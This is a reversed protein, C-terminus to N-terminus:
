EDGLVYEIVQDIKMTQGELWATEDLQKHGVAVLQQYEDLSFFGVAYNASDFWIVESGIGSSAVIAEAVGLLRAARSRQNQSRAIESLGILNLAISIDKEPDASHLKLLPLSEKLLKRAREFNGQHMEVIGLDRLDLGVQHEIGMSQWLTLSEQYCRGAEAYNGLIHYVDGLRSTFSAIAVNDEVESFLRLSEEYCIRAATYDRHHFAIIGLLGVPAASQWVNDTQQWLARSKEAYSRATNFDRKEYAFHGCWFFVRALDQIGETGLKRCLDEAEVSLHYALALDEFQV